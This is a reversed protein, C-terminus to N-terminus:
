GKDFSQLLGTTFRTLDCGMGTADFGRRVIVM